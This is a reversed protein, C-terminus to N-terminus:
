MLHSWKKNYYYNRGKGKIEDIYAQLTRLQTNSYGMQMRYFKTTKEPHKLMITQLRNMEHIDFQSKSIIFDGIFDNLNIEVVEDNDEGWKFLKVLQTLKKLNNGIILFRYILDSKLMSINNRQLEVKNLHQNEIIFTIIGMFVDIIQLPISNKSDCQIVEKIKYGKNRYASHANMQDKLKPELDITDYESNKDIVVRISEQKTLHRTLGYFLREPIKLYFLNRLDLLTTNMRNAIAVADSKKLMMLNINIDNKIVYNMTLFYKEFLADKSYDVFHMESSTGLSQNFTRIQDILNNIIQESAGLAGYYSFDGYPQDLKNSEDFYIEYGLFKM